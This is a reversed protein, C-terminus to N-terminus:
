RAPRRCGGSGDARARCRRPAARPAPLLPGAIVSRQVAVFMGAFRRPRTAAATEKQGSAGSRTRAVFGTAVLWAAAHRARWECFRTTSEDWDVSAGLEGHSVVLVDRADLCACNAGNAILFDALLRACWVEGLGEVAEIAERNPTGLVAMAHLREALQAFSHELWDLTAQAGEGLLDRATTVHRDRISQWGTQWDATTQTASEALAILADTTGRMASVVIVQRAATEADLIAAVRRFCTADALSSGGFKHAVIADASAPGTARAGPAIAAVDSM